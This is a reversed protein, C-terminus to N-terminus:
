FFRFFDTTQPTLALLFTANGNTSSGTFTASLTGTSGVGSQLKYQVGLQQGDLPKTFGTLTSATVAVARTNAWILM